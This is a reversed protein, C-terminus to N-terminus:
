PAASTRLYTSQDFARNIVENLRGVNQITSGYLVGYMGAAWQVGHSPTNKTDIMMMLVTGTTYSGAYAWGPWCAYYAWWISCYGGQYYYSYTSTLLALRMGVDSNPAANPPPSATVKTYGYAAMRGDIVSGVASPVPVSPQQQGDKWVELTPDLYYTRLATFSAGPAPQTAAVSGFVVENPAGFGGCGAAAIAALSLWRRINM